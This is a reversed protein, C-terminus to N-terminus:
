LLGLQSKLRSVCEDHSDMARGIRFFHSRNELTAKIEEAIQTDLHPSPLTDLYTLFYNQYKEDISKSSWVRLLEKILHQIQNPSPSSSFKTEKYKSM